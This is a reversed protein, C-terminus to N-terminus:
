KGVLEALVFFLLGAGLPNVRAFRVEVAALLFAACALVLFILRLPYM